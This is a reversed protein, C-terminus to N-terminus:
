CAVTNILKNDSINLIEVNDWTTPPDISSILNQLISPSTSILCNYNNILYLNDINAISKNCKCVPIGASNGSGLKVGPTVLCVVNVSSHVVEVDKTRM